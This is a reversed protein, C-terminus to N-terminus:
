WGGEVTEGGRLGFLRHKHEVVKLDSASGVWEAEGLLLLAGPALGSALLRLASEQLAPEFYILVNRCSVLDYRGEGPVGDSALDHRRFEVRRRIGPAVQYEPRTRGAAPVFHRALREPSVEVLAEAPYCARAARALASTDVDTAVIRGTQDGLEDLLMALSYPEEGLGCGASWVSLGRGGARALREALARRLVEFTAGNRFFRSVKITLRELLLGAEDPEAELRSAYSRFSDAGVTIMRNRLRREVTARRYARFDVGCRERIVELIHALWRAEESPPFAAAQSSTM